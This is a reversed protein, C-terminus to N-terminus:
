DQLRRQEETCENFSKAKCALGQRTLNLRGFNQYRLRM